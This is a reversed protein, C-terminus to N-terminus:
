KPASSFFIAMLGDNIWLLMPKAIQFSGLQVAAPAKLIASYLEALPSNAWVIAAAAAAILTLGGAAEWSLFREIASVTDRDARGREDARDRAEM